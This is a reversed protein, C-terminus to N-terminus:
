SAYAGEWGFAIFDDRRSQSHITGQALLRPNDSQVNLKMLFGGTSWDTAIVQYINGPLRRDKDSIRYNVTKM